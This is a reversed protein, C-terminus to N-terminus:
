KDKKIQIKPSLRIRKRKKREKAKYYRKRCRTSCYDNHRGRRKTHLFINQCAPHRPTAEAKCRGFPQRKNIVDIIELYAQYLILDSPPLDPEVAFTIVPIYNELEESDDIIQRLSILHRRVQPTTRGIRAPSLPNDNALSFCVTYRILRVKKDLWEMDSQDFRGYNDGEICSEICGRLHQYNNQFNIFDDSGWWIDTGPEYIGKEDCYALQGVMDPQIYFGNDGLYASAALQTEGDDYAQDLSNTPFGGFFLYVIESLRKKDEPSFRGTSLDLNYLSVLYSDGPKQTNYVYYRKKKEKPNTYM